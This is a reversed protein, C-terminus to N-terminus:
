EDNQENKFMSFVINGVSDVLMKRDAIEQLIGANVLFYCGILTTKLM